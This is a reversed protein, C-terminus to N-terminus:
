DEVGVHSIEIAHAQGAREPDLWKGICLSVVTARRFDPRMDPTRRPAGDFHAYYDLEAFPIRQECWYDPLTVNKGWAEGSELRFVLEVREARGLAGRGRLVLTAGPGAEPFAAAFLPGDTRTQVFLAERTKFDRAELRYAPAGWADKAGRCRAGDANARLFSAVDLFNWRSPAPFLKRKAAAREALTPPWRPGTAPADPPPAFYPPLDAARAARWAAADPAPAASLVYDGPALQVTGDTARAMRTGDATRWAAFAAGLDPLRVTLRPAEACVLVKKGDLGTYPDACPFVSPYLQLRWLGHAVRDLFYCGNGTSAAVDSAGCGWVRRLREPAPARTRTTATYLLDSETAMESLNGAADVRFPPFSMGAYAPTFPAGRPTRRFVEAAIAFSLAKAPTYALNLYHTRYSLNVDALPLADYQFQTAWQVGESRFLQAMAPYMYAGPVDAADFEYVMKAMKRLCPRPALTSAQVRALQLGELAQGAQLGTAYCVGSVGDTRLLPVAEYHRNWTASYFVPKKTGSARLGDLLANAYAAIQEGTTDEPYAPENVLEFGLIAPDDAYRRGTYRNVHRAFEEEFRVQAGRLDPRSTLERMTVACAFGNTASTWPAGGWAAIPTLVTYLGNSAAESILFDLLDVHDNEVFAGKKTSFERDFCHLRLATLGLRRFHAVDRRIVEKRDLGREGLARYDLAFPTYYNVGFLAVESQDDAWRLVGEGDAMATRSAPAVAWAAGCAMVLLGAAIKKM